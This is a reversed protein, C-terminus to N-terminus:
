APATTTTTTAAATTTLGELTTAGGDILDCGWEIASAVGVARVAELTPNEKAKRDPTGDEPAQPVRLMPLQFQLIHGLPHTFTAEWAITNAGRLAQNLVDNRNLKTLTLTIERTCSM